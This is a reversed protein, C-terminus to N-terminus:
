LLLLLVRPSNVPLPQSSISLSKKKSITLSKALRCLWNYYGKLNSIIAKTGFSKAKLASKGLPLVEFFFGIM